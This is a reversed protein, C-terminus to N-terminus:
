VSYLNGGVAIINRRKFSETPRMFESMKHLRLEEKLSPALRAWEPCVYPEYPVSEDSDEAFNRLGRRLGLELRWNFSKVLEECLSAMVAYQEPNTCGYKRPDELLGPNFDARTRYWIYECEYQISPGFGTCFFKYLRFFSRMPTDHWKWVNVWRLDHTEAEAALIADPDALIERPEPPLEAPYHWPFPSLLKIYTLYPHEHSRSLMALSYGISLGNMPNTWWERCTYWKFWIWHRIKGKPGVHPFPRSEMKKISHPPQSLKDHNVQTIPHAM